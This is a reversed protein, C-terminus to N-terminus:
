HEPKLLSLILDASARSSEHEWVRLVRWGESKLADTVGMDRKMNRELKSQWYELNSKPLHGHTPCSHWFCGDVFVALLSRTFVIDPRAVVGQVRIPLDKRFRLGRRHLEARLLVEPKTDIRRNGKM